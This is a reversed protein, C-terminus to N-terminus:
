THTHYQTHHTCLTHTIHTLPLSMYFRNGLQMQSLSPVASVWPLQICLFHIPFLCSLSSDKASALSLVFPFFHLLSLKELLSSPLM